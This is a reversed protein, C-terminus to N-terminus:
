TQVEQHGTLKEWVHDIIEPPVGSGSADLRLFPLMAIICQRLEQVELALKKVYDDADAERQRAIWRAPTLTAM